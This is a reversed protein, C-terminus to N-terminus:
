WGQTSFIQRIRADIDFYRRDGPLSPDPTGPVGASDPIFNPHPTANWGRNLFGPGSWDDYDPLPTSLCSDIAQTGGITNLRYVWNLFADAAAEIPNNATNQQFDTVLSAIAGGPTIYYQAPGTGWGRRGRAWPENGVVGMVRDLNCDQLLFQDDIPDSLGNGTRYDFIHGLEHVITYEDAELTQTTGSYHDILAGNCLVAAPRLIDTPITGEQYTICYGEPIGPYSFSATQGMRSGYLYQYNSITVTGSVAQQTRIFLIETGSSELMVLNFAGRPTNVTSALYDFAIGVEMVGDDIAQLENNSWSRTTDDIVNVKFPAPTSTATPTLTPTPTPDPFGLLCDTDPNAPATTIFDNSIVNAGISDGSGPGYGSPGDAAGWWSKIAGMLSSSDVSYNSNGLFCSESIIGGGWVAGGSGSATNDKLLSAEVYTAGYIGGGNGQSTNDKITSNSVSLYAVNYIGGGNGESVNNQITSTDIVSLDASDAAYIGGGSIESENTEITSSAISLSASGVIAIGAGRKGTNDSITSNTIEGTGDLLAIGGGRGVSNNNHNDSIISNSITLDAQFVYVGAGLIDGGINVYNTVIESNNTIHVDGRYSFIGSGGTLSASGNTIKVHDLALTADEDVALIRFNTGSSRQITAIGETVTGRLMIACRIVPLGVAGFNQGPPAFTEYSSFLTYTSSTLEIIVAPTESCDDNAAIIANQLESQNAAEVEPANEFVNLEAFLLNEQPKPRPQIIIIGPTLTPTPTMVSVITETPTVVPVITETPTVQLAPTETPTELLPTPSLTATSSPEEPPVDTFTPTLTPPETFTPIPTPTETFTETPSPEALTETPLPEVPPTEEQSVVPSAGLVALFVLLLRFTLVRLRHFQLMM